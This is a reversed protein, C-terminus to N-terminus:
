RPYPPVYPDYVKHVTKASYPSDQGHCVACTEVEDGGWAGGTRTVPDYTPTPDYTQPLMHLEAQDSDHCSGCALRSPSTNWSGTTDGSHCKTCNRIDQPFIIGGWIPNNPYIKDPYTLYKGRHVGHVKKVIPDAGYAAWVDGNQAERRYDHCNKCYDTNFPVPHRGGADTHMLKTGHCDACNKAIYLDPTGTGVQFSLLATGDPRSTKYGNVFINYTGSVLGAVDDLQYEIRKDKSNWSVKPDTDWADTLQRLQNGTTAGLTALGTTWTMATTVASAKIDIMSGAAGPKNKITVTSGSATVAKAVANFASDANLWAVVEAETAAAPNAFSAPAATLTIPAAGNIALIFTPSGSLNWPGATQNTVSVQLGKASTTLVPTSRAARPGSVFLSLWSWAAQTITTPDVLLGTATDRLSIFIKPTNGAVYGGAPPAPSLALEVTHPQPGSPTVQDALTFTPVAHSTGIPLIGDNHCTNCLNVDHEAGPVGNTIDAIELEHNKFGQPTATADGSWLNDHCAACAYQSPKQSWKDDVHCLTCNRVDPPFVVTTYAAFYGEKVAVNNTSGDSNYTTSTAVVATGIKDTAKIVSYATRTPDSIKLVDLTEGIVFTGTVHGLAFWTAGDSSHVRAEAGSTLGHILRVPTTSPDGATTPSFGGALNPLPNSIAMRHTNRPSRLEEGMHIGHVRRIIPDPLKTRAAVWTDTTNAHGAQNHCTKCSAIALDDSEYSGASRESTDSHHFYHHSNDAGKHCSACNTLAVTETEVTATKIQFDKIVFARDYIATKSRLRAVARYTGAAESSVPATVFTAVNGAVSLGTQPGELHIYSSANAVRMLSVCTVTKSQDLPGYIYLQALNTTNIDIPDGDADTVTVSLTIAEGTDFYAGGGTPTSVTITGVLGSITSPAGPPGAPGAPRADSPTDCGAALVSAIALFAVSESWPRCCTTLM